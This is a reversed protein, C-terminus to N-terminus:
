QNIKSNNKKLETIKESIVEIVYELENIVQENTFRIIEIGLEKLTVERRIDYENNEKSLHIGGDIEIILKLEHCYYDAVYKWVPHQRRIRVGLQNKSLREWIIKEAVTMNKRLAEAYQFIKKSAGYHMNSAM